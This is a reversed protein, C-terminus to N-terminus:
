SSGQCASDRPGGSTWSHERVQGIRGSEMSKNRKHGVVPAAAEETAVSGKVSGDAARKLGQAVPSTVPM